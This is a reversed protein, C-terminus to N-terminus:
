LEAMLQWNIRTDYNHTHAADLTIDGHHDVEITISSAMRRMDLFPIDGIIGEMRGVSAVGDEEDGAFKGGSM